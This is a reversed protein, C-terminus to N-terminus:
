RDGELDDHMLCSIKSGCFKCVVSHKNYHTFCSTDNKITKETTINNLILLIVGLVLMMDRIFYTPTYYLIGLYDLAWWGIWFALLIGGSDLPITILIKPSYENLLQIREKLNM